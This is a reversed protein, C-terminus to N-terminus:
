HRRPQGLARVTQTTASSTAATYNSDGTYEATILDIGAPLAMTTTTATTVGAMTSVLASGLYISGSETFFEVSGAPHGPGARMPTITAMLTTPAAFDSPNPSAHMSISTTEADVAQGIPTSSSGLSKADGVYYASITDVTGASSSGPSVTGLDSTTFTATTVGHKTSLTGTGLVKANADNNNSDNYFIVEGTPAAWSSLGPDGASTAGGTVTATFTVPQGYSSTPYKYNGVYAMPSSSKLSVTTPDHTTSSKAILNAVGGAATSCYIDWGGTVSASCSLHIVSTKDGGDSAEFLGYSISKPATPLPTPLGGVLVPNITGGLKITNEQSAVKTTSASIPSGDFATGGWPTGGLAGGSPSAGVNITGTNDFTQTWSQLIITSGYLLDITGANDFTTNAL